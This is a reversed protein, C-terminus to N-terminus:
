FAGDAIGESWNSSEQLNGNRYFIERFGHKLDGLYEGREALKGDQYHVENVQGLLPFSCIFLFLLTILKNM